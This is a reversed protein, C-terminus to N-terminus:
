RRSIGRGVVDPPPAYLHFGSRPNTPCAVCSSTFYFRRCLDPYSVKGGPSFFATHGRNAGPRVSSVKEEEGGGEQSRAEQSRDEECRGEEQSGHTYGEKRHKPQETKKESRRRIARWRVSSSIPEAEPKMAAARASRTIGEADQRDSYFWRPHVTLLISFAFHFFISSGLLTPPM